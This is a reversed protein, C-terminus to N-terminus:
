CPELRLAGAQTMGQDPTVAPRLWGILRRRAKRDTLAELLVVLAAANM